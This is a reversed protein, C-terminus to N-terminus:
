RQNGAPASRKLTDLWAASRIDRDLLYRLYYRLVMEIERTVAADTEIQGVVTWDGDQLSRLAQLANLSLPHTFAQSLRCDPCVVGGGAVSFYAATDPLSRRCSICHHLQPRYGAEHLLHLEFYRLAQACSAPGDCAALRRMTELLLEFLPRNEQREAGFQGVLETAYLACAGLELDCKLPVFSEMTQSGIVTDLNRGHALEVMSHTLLELHGSLKSKPRRVGKAV